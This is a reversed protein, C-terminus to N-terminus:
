KHREPQAYPKHKELLGRLTVAAEDDSHSGYTVDECAAIGSKVAEREEETLRLREIEDAADMIDALDIAGAEIGIRLRQAIDTSM